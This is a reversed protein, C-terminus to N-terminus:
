WGPLSVLDTVMEPQPLWGYDGGIHERVPIWPAPFYKAFEYILNTIDTPLEVSGM